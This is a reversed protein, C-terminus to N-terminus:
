FYGCTFNLIIVCYVMDFNRKETKHFNAIKLIIKIYYKQVPHISEKLYQFFLPTSIMFTQQMHIKHEGRSISFFFVNGGRGLTNTTHEGGLQGGGRNILGEHRVMIKSVKYTHLILLPPIASIKVTNALDGTVSASPFVFSLTDANMTSLLKPPTVLYARSHNPKRDRHFQRSRWLIQWSALWLRQPSNLRCPTLTWQPSFCHM